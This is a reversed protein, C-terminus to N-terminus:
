VNSCEPEHTEDQNKKANVKRGKSKQSVPPVPMYCHIPVLKVRSQLVYTHCALLEDNPLVGSEAKYSHGSMRAGTPNEHAFQSPVASEKGSLAGLVSPPPLKFMISTDLNNM